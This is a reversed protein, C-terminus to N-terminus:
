KPEWEFHQYDKLSRWSGGWTFGHRAFLRTVPGQRILGRADITRDAFKAGNKPLVRKGKVYPNTQPNLDIARGYSHKSFKGKQGTVDRCNFASTNNASMSRDDNGSYKEMPEIREILFKMDYLEQFIAHVEDAIDKHVILSGTKTKGDFGNYRVHVVRLEELSVPCGKRFVSPTMEAAREESIKHPAPIGERKTPQGSVSLSAIFILLVFFKRRPLM